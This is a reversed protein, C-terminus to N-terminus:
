TEGFALGFILVSLETSLLFFRVSVWLITDVYGGILAAANVSMSVACRIVSILVNM